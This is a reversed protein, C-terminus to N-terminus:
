SAISRSVRDEGARAGIPVGASNVPRIKCIIAQPLEAVGALFYGNGPLHRPVPSVVPDGLVAPVDASSTCTFALGAPQTLAAM